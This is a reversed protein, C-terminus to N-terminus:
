HNGNIITEEYLTIIKLKCAKCINRRLHAYSVYEKNKNSFVELNESTQKNEHNLSSIEIQVALVDKESLSLKDFAAKENMKLDKLAEELTEASRNMQQLRKGDEEIKKEINEVKRNHIKLNAALIESNKEIKQKLSTLELKGNKLKEKISNLQAKAELIQAEMEMSIEFHIKKKFCSSCVTSFDKQNIKIHSKCFVNSCDNCEIIKKGSLIINCAFCRGESIGSFSKSSSM